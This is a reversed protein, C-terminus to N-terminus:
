GRSPPSAHRLVTALDEPLFPKQLFGAAGTREDLLKSAVEQETYGSMLVVPLDPRRERIHRLTESGGMRPMSLDLLVTSVAGDHDQLTELAALGDEAALM